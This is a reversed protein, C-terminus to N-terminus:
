GRPSAGGAAVAQTGLAPAALWAGPDTTVTPVTFSFTSGHGLTSEVEITGGHAEVIGKAIALGLGAGGRQGREAQWFRDFLRPLQDPAIGPGDDRVSFRVGSRAGTMAARLEVRGGAPAYKVANGLLNSLVQSLRGRDARLPPLGDEVALELRLTREGSAAEFLAATERVLAAADVPAIELSLGGAEIRTVDLLDDVLREMQKAARFMAAPTGAELAKGADLELVSCGTCITALPDRLDHSVIAVTQDRARVAETAERYLRANDVLLAARSALTEALVLDDRSYRRGSDETTVLALAGVIRGRACLPVMISSRPQLLRLLRLHEANQAGRELVDPTIDSRLMAEGTRLVAGAGTAADLQPPGAGALEEVLAQRAPDRHALGVRRVTDDADLAYSVCYDALGSGSGAGEVVFRALTKLTQDPDLTTSLVRSAEALLQQHSRLEKEVELRESLAHRADLLEQEVRLREIAFAVHAAVTQATAIEERTFAHPERHYLMFKGRLRGAVRLPVFALARIGERRFLERYTALDASSEVDEVLVPSPEVADPRWPSHGEVAQRYEASLGSWAVFRMVGEADFLLVAARDIGLAEELCRLVREYVIDLSRAGSVEDILRALHELTTAPSANTM